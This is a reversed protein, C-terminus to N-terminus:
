GAVCYWLGGPAATVSADQLRALAWDVLSPDPSPRKVGTWRLGVLTLGRVHVDSYTRLTVSDAPCPAAALVTGLSSVKHLADAIRTGDGTTDVITSGGHQRHVPGLALRILHGLVGDGVVSVSGAGNAECSRVAEEAVTALETAADVRAAATAPWARAWVHDVGETPGNVFLISPPDSPAVAWRAQDPLLFVTRGTVLDM